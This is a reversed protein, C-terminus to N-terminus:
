EKALVVANRMPAVVVSAGVKVTESRGAVWALTTLIEFIRGYDEAASADVLLHDTGWVDTFGHAAALEVAADIGERSAGDGLSPLMLGYDM